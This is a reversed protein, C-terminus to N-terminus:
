HMGLPNTEHTQIFLNGTPSSRWDCKTQIRFKESVVVDTGSIQLERSWHESADRIFLPLRGLKALGAVISAAWAGKETTAWDVSPKSYTIGSYSVATVFEALRLPVLFGYATAAAVGPQYAPARRLSDGYSAIFKRMAETEFVYAFDTCVSVHVRMDSKENAIGYAIV